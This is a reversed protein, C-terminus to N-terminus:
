ARRVARRASEEPGGVVNKNNTDLLYFLSPNTATNPNPPPGSPPASSRTTSRSAARRTAAVQTRVTVSPYSPRRSAAPGIVNPEWDYFYMQATTGVADIARQLDNSARCRSRRDPRRGLAPDGPEAVGLQDVRERMIDIARDLSDRTSRAQQRRSARTSPEVGGKLDLGLQTPKTTSRSADVALLLGAVLLLILTAAAILTMSSAPPRGGAHPRSCAATMMTPRSSIPRREAPLDGEAHVRRAQRARARGVRAGAGRLRHRGGLRLGLVDSAPRGIVREDDLGTLEFSGARLPDPPRQQDGAFFAADPAPYYDDLLEFLFTHGCKPCGRAERSFGRQRDSATSRTGCNPCIFLHAM